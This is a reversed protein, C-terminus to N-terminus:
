SSLVQDANEYSLVQDHHRSGKAAKSVSQLFTDRLYTIVTLFEIGRGDVEAKAKVFKLWSVARKTLNNWIATPVPDFKNPRVNDLMPLGKLHPTQRLDCNLNFRM